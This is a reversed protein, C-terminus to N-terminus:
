YVTDGENFREPNILVENFRDLTRVRQKDDGTGVYFFEDAVVADEENYGIVKIPVFTATNDVGLVLVGNQGEKTIISDKRVKLGQYNERVVTVDVKRLKYFSPFQDTFKIILAGQDGSEFVDAVVGKIADEGIQVTVVKDTEYTNIEEKGIVAAMFWMSPEVLKYVPSNKYIVNDSLPSIGMSQNIVTSYDINYIEEITFEEELNDVNFTVIGAYPSYLSLSEGEGLDGSGVFQQSFSSKNNVLSKNAVLRDRKEMKLILDQKLESAKEYNGDKIAMVSDALLQDLSDDIEGINVEIIESIALEKEETAEEVPNSVSELQDNFYIEAIKQGKKVKEGEAVFYKINGSSNSYVITENRFLISDYHREVNLQDYTLEYTLNEKFFTALAFKVSFFLIVGVILISRIMKFPRVKVM